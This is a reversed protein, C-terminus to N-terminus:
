RVLGYLVSMGLGVMVGLLLGIVFLWIMAREVARVARAGLYGYM